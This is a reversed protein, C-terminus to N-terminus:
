WYRTYPAVVERWAVLALGVGLAGAANDLSLQLWAPPLEPACVLAAVVAAGGILAAAAAFCRLAGVPGVRRMSEDDVGPAFADLLLGSLFWALAWSGAFSLTTSFRVPDTRIPALWGPFEPSTLIVSLTRAFSFAFILTTDAAVLKQDIDRNEGLQAIAPRARCAPTRSFAARPATQVLFAGCCSSQVLLLLLTANTTTVM